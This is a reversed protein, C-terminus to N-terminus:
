ASGDGSHPFDKSIDQEEINVEASNYLESNISGNIANESSIEDVDESHEIINNLLVYFKNKRLINIYSYENIKTTLMNEIDNDDILYILNQSKINFIEGYHDCYIIDLKKKFKSLIEKTRQHDKIQKEIDQNQAIVNM